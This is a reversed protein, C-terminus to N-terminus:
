GYTLREFALLPDWLRRALVGFQTTEDPPADQVDADAPSAVLM